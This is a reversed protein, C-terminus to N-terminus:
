IEGEEEEEEEDWMHDYDDENYLLHTSPVYREIYRRKSPSQLLTCVTSLSKKLPSKTPSSLPTPIPSLPDLIDYDNSDDDIPITELCPESKVTYLRKGKPHNSEEVATCTHESHGNVGIANQRPLNKKLVLPPPIVGGTIPVPVEYNSNDHSMLYSRPTQMSTITKRMKVPSPSRRMVVSIPAYRNALQYQWIDEVNLIHYSGSKKRQAIIVPQDSTNSLSHVVTSHAPSSIPRRKKKEKVFGRESPNTDLKMKVALGDDTSINEQKVMKLRNALKTRLSNVLLTLNHQHKHIDTVCEDDDDPISAYDSSEGSAHTM